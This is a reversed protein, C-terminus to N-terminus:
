CFLPDMYGLDMRGIIHFLAMALIKLAAVILMLLSAYIVHPFYMLFWILLVATINKLDLEYLVLSFISLVLVGVPICLSSNM